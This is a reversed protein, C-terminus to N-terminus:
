NTLLTEKQHEIIQLKMSTAYRPYNKKQHSCLIVYAIFHFNEQNAKM